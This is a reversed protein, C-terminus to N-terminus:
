NNNLGNFLHAVVDVTFALGLAKQKDTKSVGLVENVYDDPITMM